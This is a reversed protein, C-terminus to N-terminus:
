YIDDISIARAGEPRGFSPRMNPMNALCRKRSGDVCDYIRPDYTLEYFEELYPTVLELERGGSIFYLVPKKKPPDSQGTIEARLLNCLVALSEVKANNCIDHRSLRRNAFLSESTQTNCYSDILTRAVVTNGKLRLCAKPLRGLNLEYTATAHHTGVGSQNLYFTIYSLRAFAARMRVDPLLVRIQEVGILDRGNFDRRSPEWIKFGSINRLFYFYAGRSKLKALAHPLLIGKVPAKHVMTTDLYDPHKTWDKKQQDTFSAWEEETIYKLPVQTKVGDKLVNAVLATAVCQHHFDVRNLFHAEHEEPTQGVLLDDVEKEIKKPLKAINKKLYYALATPNEEVTMITAFCTKPADVVVTKPINMYERCLESPFYTPSDQGKSLLHVLVSRHMNNM